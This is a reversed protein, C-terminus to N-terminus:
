SAAPKGRKAEFRRLIVWQQLVSLASNLTWYIVLGASFSAMIFTFIIPLMAMVKQQTPDMQTPSLKQQLYMTVGMLMPWIGIALFQPPDFNILGFLNVITLPDPASLDQIWGFFPEHRMEITVYLVKYLAFFIFIQPLLPLCGALPNIKEKKYLAMMEQQMRARDDKYREQLKKIKPQAEKMHAMSEYQRNALPYLALKLLVVLMIIAIGFNGTIGNFLDLLFFIPRTLFYFYGWDISRDFLAIGLSEEYDDILGAKKAGAYFHSTRSFTAGSAVNTLDEQYGTQHTVNGLSNGRVVEAVALPANQDPILVTMWYKDTIGMWGGTSRAKVEPTDDFDSYDYEKFKSNFVTIPGEHLIYFSDSEPLGSRFLLGFPAFALSGDSTNNVSQTVTFMFHDDISITQQFVLGVPNTWSLTVPSEPTLTTKDASWITSRGPVFGQETGPASWGFRAFYADASGYPHLLEVKEESNLSLNHNLLILQDFRAGALTIRGSLEPTDITVFGADIIRSETEALRTAPNEDTNPAALQNIDSGPETAAGSQLGTAERARQAAEWEALDREYQAKEKEIKPGLYFYQYGFFLALTAVIALIVNRTNDEM